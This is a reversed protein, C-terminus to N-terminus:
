DGLIDVKQICKAMYSASHHYFARCKAATVVHFSSTLVSLLAARREPYTYGNNFGPANWRTKVEAKLCSFAAEIPNLFPSYPPLYHITHDNRDLAINKHIICNDMIFHFRGGALLESLEVLFETYLERTFAGTRVKTHLVGNLGIAMVLSINQGRQGDCVTFCRTGKKSRGYNRKIWVNFGSEDIFVCNEPIPGGEIMWQAYTFRLDKVRPSNREAPVERTM